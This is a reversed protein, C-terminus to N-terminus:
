GRGPCQRHRLAPRIPDRERIVKRVADFGSKMLEQTDIDLESM